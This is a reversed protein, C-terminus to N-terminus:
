RSALSIAKPSLLVVQRAQAKKCSMKAMNGCCSMKVQETGKAKSCCGASDKDQANKADGAQAAVAFAKVVVLVFLKKM